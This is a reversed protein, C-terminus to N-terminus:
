RDLKPRAWKRFVSCTSPLCKRFRSVRHVFCVRITESLRFCFRNSVLGVRNKVSRRQFDSFSYLQCQDNNASSGGNQVDSYCKQVLSKKQLELFLSIFSRWHVINFVLHPLVWLTPPTSTDHWSHSTPPLRVIAERESWESSTSSKLTSSRRNCPRRLFVWTAFRVTTKWWTSPLPLVASACDFSFEFCVQLAQSLCVYRDHLLLASLM